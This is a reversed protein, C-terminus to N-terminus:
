RRRPRRFEPPLEVPDNSPTVPGFTYVLPGLAVRLPVGDDVSIWADLELVLPPGGLLEVNYHGVYKYAPKKGVVEVQKYGSMDVWATGPYGKTFIPLSYEEDEAALMLIKGSSSKQVLHGDQVYGDTKTGDSWTVVVYTLGVGCHYNISVPLHQPTTTKKATGTPKPVNTHQVEIQWSTGPRPAAVYPAHPPPIPTAEQAFGALPLLAVTAGLCLFHSNM